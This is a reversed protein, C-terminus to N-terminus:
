NANHAFGHTDSDSSPSPRTWVVEYSGMVQACDSDKCACMKDKFSGGGMSKQKCKGMDEGIQTMKAFAPQPMMSSSALIVATLLLATCGRTALGKHSTTM